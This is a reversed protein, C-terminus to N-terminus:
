VAGVLLKRGELCGSVVSDIFYYNGGRELAVTVRGGKVNDAWQELYGAKLDCSQFVAQSV